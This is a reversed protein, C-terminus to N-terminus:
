ISAVSDKISRKRREKRREKKRQNHQLPVHQRIATSLLHAVNALPLVRSAADRKEAYVYSSTIWWDSLDISRDGQMSAESALVTQALLLSTQPLLRKHFTQRSSRPASTKIDQRLSYTRKAQGCNSYGWRKSERWKRNNCPGLWLLIRM